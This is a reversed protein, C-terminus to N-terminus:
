GSQTAQSSTLAAACLLLTTLTAFAQPIVFLHSWTLWTMPISIVFLTWIFPRAASPNTRALSALQWSLIAFAVLSWTVYFGFVNYFEWYSRTSGQFTETFNRMADFLAQKAPTDAKLDEYMAGYVHGAAYLAFVIAAIRLPWVIRANRNSM